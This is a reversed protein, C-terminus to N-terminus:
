TPNTPVDDFDDPIEEKVPPKKKKEDKQVTFFDHKLCDECTIRKTHDKELMRKLIDYTTNDLRLYDPSDM